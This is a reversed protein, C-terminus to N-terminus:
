SLNPTCIISFVWAGVTFEAHTPKLSISWNRLSRASQQKGLRGPAKDVPLRRRPLTPQPSPQAAPLHCRSLSTPRVECNASTSWCASATLCADRLLEIQWWWAAKPPELGKILAQAVVQEVNVRLLLKRNQKTIACSTKAM